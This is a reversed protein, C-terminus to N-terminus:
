SVERVVLFAGVGPATVLCGSGAPVMQPVGPPGGLVPEASGAGCEGGAWPQAGPGGGSQGGLGFEAFLLAAKQGAEVLRAGEGLCGGDGCEGFGLGGGVGAQLDEPLVGRLYQM